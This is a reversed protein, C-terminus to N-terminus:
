ATKAAKRLEYNKRHMDMCARCSRSGTRTIYVNDPTLAHGRKCQTKRGNKAWPSEGRRGNELGTVPELHWPNVCWRNRCLHDVTLGDPIVGVFAEYSLRHALTRDLQGYGEPHM